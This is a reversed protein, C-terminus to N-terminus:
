VQDVQNSEEYVEEQTWATSAVEPTFAQRLAQSRHQLLSLGDSDPEEEAGECYEPGLPLPPEIDPNEVIVTFCAGEPVPFLNGASLDLNGFLTRCRSAPVIPPCQFDVVAERLLQWHDIVTPLVTCIQTPDWPDAFSDMVTLIVSRKDPEPQQLLIVHFQVMDIGSIPMPRVVQLDFPLDDRFWDSWAQQFCPIWNGLDAGLQVIRGADSWPRRCHDSFWVEARIFADAPLDQTDFFYHWVEQLTAWHLPWNPTPLPGGNAGFGAHASVRQPVQLYEDCLRDQPTQLSSPQPIQARSRRLWRGTQVLSPGTVLVTQRDVYTDRASGAAPDGFCRAPQVHMEISAASPIDHRIYKDFQAVGLRATCRQIDCLPNIELIDILDSTSIWRSISYAEQMLQVPILRMFSLSSLVAAVKGACPKQEVM